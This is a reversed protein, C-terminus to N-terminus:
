LLFSERAVALASLAATEVRLTNKGLSFFKVGNSEVLNEEEHSWGGEPGILITINKQNELKFDKFARARSSLSGLFINEEKSHDQILFPLTQPHDFVPMWPNGSQKCADIAIREWKKIKIDQKKNVIKCESRVTILPTLRSVGLETLPRIMDEWRNGKLLAIALRFNLKSNNFFEKELIRLKVSKGKISEISTRYKSGKGDLAELEDGEKLRLVKVLHHSETVDLLIFGNPHESNVDFFTRM